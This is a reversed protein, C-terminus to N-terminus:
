RAVVTTAPYWDQAGGDFTCLYQENQYDAVTAHYLNGDGATVAVPTGPAFAALAPAAPLAAAAQAGTIGYYTRIHEAFEAELEKWTGKVVLSFIAFFIVGPLIGLLFSLNLPIAAGMSPPVSGALRVQNTGKKPTIALGRWATKRAIINRGRVIYQYKPLTSELWAKMETPTGWPQQLDLLM